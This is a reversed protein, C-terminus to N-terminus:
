NEDSFYAQRSLHREGSEKRVLRHCPPLLDTCDSRIPISCPRKQTPHQQDSISSINTTPVPLRIQISSSPTTIASSFFMGHPRRKLAGSPATRSAPATTIRAAPSRLYPLSAPDFSPAARPSLPLRLIPCGPAVAPTSPHP